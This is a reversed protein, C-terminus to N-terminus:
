PGMVGRGGMAAPPHLPVLLIPEEANNGIFPVYGVIEPDRNFNNATGRAELEDKLGIRAHPQKM